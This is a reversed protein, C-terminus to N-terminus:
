AGGSLERRLWARALTWDRKVSAPSIGLLEAIEEIELGGFFRLEVVRAARADVAEFALLAEHVAIVDRDPTGALQELGALTIDIREAERKAARKAQAYNVLIRRMMTAAVALFHARNKWQTRTQAALRFWAEHTLATASLTHGPDERRLQSRALRRLEDYLLEFLRPAVAADAADFQALWLTVESPPPEPPPPEPPPDSPPNMRPPSREIPPM